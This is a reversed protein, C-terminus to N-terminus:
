AAGDIVAKEKL